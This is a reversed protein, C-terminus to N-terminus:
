FSFGVLLELQNTITQGDGRPNDPAWIKMQSSFRFPGARFADTLSGGGIVGISVNQGFSDLPAALFEVALGAFVIVTSRRM